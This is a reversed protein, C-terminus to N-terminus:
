SGLNDMEASHLLKPTVLWKLTGCAPELWNWDKVPLEICILCGTPVELIGYSGDGGTLFEVTDEISPNHGVILVESVSAPIKKLVNLYARLGSEYLNEDWRINISKQSISLLPELTEKVRIAPSAIVYVTDIPITKKIFGALVPADKRGRSNLPRDFDSLSGDSWDSKAHRLFYVTKM